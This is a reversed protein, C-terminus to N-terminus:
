EGQAKKAQLPIRLGLNFRTLGILSPDPSGVLGFRTYFIVDGAASVFLTIRNGPLMHQYMLQLGVSPNFYESYVHKFTYVTDAHQPREVISEDFHFSHLGVSPGLFLGANKGSYLAFLYSVGFTFHQNHPDVQRNYSRGDAGSHFVYDFNRHNFRHAFTLETKNGWRDDFGFGIQYGLSRKFHLYSTQSFDAALCLEQAHSTQHPILLIILVIIKLSNSQFHRM